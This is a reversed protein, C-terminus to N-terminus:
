EASDLTIGQQRLAALVADLGKEDLKGIQKSLQNRVAKNTGKKSKALEAYRAWDAEPMNEVIAEFLPGIKVGNKECIADVKAKNTEANNYIHIAFSRM